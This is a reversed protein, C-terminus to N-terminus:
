PNMSAIAAQYRRRLEPLLRWAPEGQSAELLERSPMGGRIAEESARGREVSDCLEPVVHRYEPGRLMLRQRRMDQEDAFQNCLFRYAELESILIVITREAREPEFEVRDAIGRRASELGLFLMYVVNGAAEHWPGAAAAKDTPSVLESPAPTIEAFTRMSDRVAKMYTYFATINIVVRAELTQLDRTNREFVPFYHEQSGFPRAPV